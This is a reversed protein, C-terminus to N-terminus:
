GQIRSKKFIVKAVAYGAVDTRFIVYGNDFFCLSNLHGLSRVILRTNLSNTM